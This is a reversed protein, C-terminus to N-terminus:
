LSAPYGEMRADSRLSSTGPPESFRSPGSIMQRGFSRNLATHRLTRIKENDRRLMKTLARLRENGVAEIVIDELYLVDLEAILFAALADEMSSVLPEDHINFSTNILVPIGTNEEYATLLEHLFPDREATVVQPRATGDVHVIAPAIHRIMSQVPLCITMYPLCDTVDSAVESLDFVDTLREYRLIPAFPMFETRRLKANLLDNIKPDLASSLISRQGLARPGFEQRGRVLAVTLGAALYDAIEKSPQEGRRHIVGLTSLQEEMGTGLDAGLSMPPPYAYGPKRSNGRIRDRVAAAAGISLGDDGMSPAVFIRSFGIKALELNARVNSFVGGSLILPLDRGYTEAVWLGVTTLKEELLDQAARAVDVDSFPLEARYIDVLYRNPEFFAPTEEDLLGVWGYLRHKASRIRRHVEWLCRQNEKSSKGYAALGTIKGEHKCPTFGLLVTADTYLAALAEHDSLSAGALRTVSGQRIHFVGITIACGYAGYDATLALAEPYGSLVFGTYAHMDHHDFFLLPRGLSELRERWVPPYLRVPYNPAPHLLPQFVKDSPYRGPDYDLYPVGIADVDDLKVTALVRDPFRGDQKVRSIREEGMAFVLSGESSILSITSDHMGNYNIGLFSGPGASWLEAM